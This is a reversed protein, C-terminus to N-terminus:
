YHCNHRNLEGTNTFTAKDSFMVFMFLEPNQIAWRCFQLRQLFNRPTLAQTLTIHYVHYKLAKLIRLVTSKSIESERQIQRSSIDPNLHIM